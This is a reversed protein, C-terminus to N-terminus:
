RNYTYADVHNIVGFNSVHMGRLRSYQTRESSYFNFVLKKVNRQHM